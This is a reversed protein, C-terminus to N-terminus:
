DHPILFDNEGMCIHLVTQLASQFKGADRLWSVGAEDGEELLRQGVTTHWDIMRSCIEVVMLKHVMPDQVEDAAADIHKMASEEIKDRM